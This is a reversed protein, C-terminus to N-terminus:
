SGCVDPPLEKTALRQLQAEAGAGLASLDVCPLELRQRWGVVQRPEGAPAVFVTRLSEHRSVVRNLAARLARPVLQGALEVVSLVVYAPSRPDLQHLFWLREQVPSLPLMEGAERPRPQVAEASRKRAMQEELLKRKAPSLKAIREILESM